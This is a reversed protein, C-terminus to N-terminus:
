SCRRPPYLRLTAFIAPTQVDGARLLPRMSPCSRRRANRALTELAAGMRIRGLPLNEEGRLLMEVRHADFRASRALVQGDFSVIDLAPRDTLANADAFGDELDRHDAIRAVAHVLQPLAQPGLELAPASHERATTSLPSTATPSSIM